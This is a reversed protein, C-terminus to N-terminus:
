FLATNRDGADHESALILIALGRALEAASHGSFWSNAAKPLQSLQQLLFPITVFVLILGWVISVIIDL